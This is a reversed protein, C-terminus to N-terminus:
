EESLGIMFKADKQHNDIIVKLTDLDSQFDEDNSSFVNNRIIDGVHQNLKLIDDKKPILNVSHDIPVIGSPVNLNLNYMKFSKTAVGWIQYKGGSLIRNGKKIHKLVEEKMMQFLEKETGPNFWQVTLSGSEKERIILYGNPANTMTADSTEFMQVTPHKDTTM